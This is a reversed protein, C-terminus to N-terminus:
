LIYHSWSCFIIFTWLSSRWSAFIWRFPEDLSGASISASTIKVNNSAPQTCVALVNSQLISDAIRRPSVIKSSGGRNRFKQAWPELPDGKNPKPEEHEWNDNSVAYVCSTYQSSIDLCCHMKAFHRQLIAGTRFAPVSQNLPARQARSWSVTWM